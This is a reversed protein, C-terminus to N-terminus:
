KLLQVKSLLPMARQEEKFVGVLGMIWCIFLFINLLGPILDVGAQSLITSVLNCILWVLTQNLHFKLQPDNKDGKFYAILWGIIGLFYTLLLATKTKMKSSDQVYTSGQANYDYSVSSQAPRLSQQYQQFQQTQNAATQTQTQFPNQTQASHAGHPEFPNVNPAAPAAGLSDFAGHAAAQANAAGAQAAQSIAEQANEAAETAQNMAPAASPAVIPAGCNTCFKTGEAVQSGCSTCFM